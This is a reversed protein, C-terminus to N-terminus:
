GYGESGISSELIQFVAAELRAQLHRHLYEYGRGDESVEIKTPKHTLTLRLRGDDLPLSKVIVSKPDLKM